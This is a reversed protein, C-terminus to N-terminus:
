PRRLPSRTVGGIVDPPSLTDILNTLPSKEKAHRRPPLRPSESEPSGTNFYDPGLPLTVDDGFNFPPLNPSYDNPLQFSPTNMMDFSGLGTRLFPTVPSRRIDYNLPSRFPSPRPSPRTPKEPTGRNAQPSPPQDLHSRRKTTSSPPPPIQDEETDFQAQPFYGEGGQQEPPYAHYSPPGSYYVRPSATPFPGYQYKPPPPRSNSSLPRGPSKQQHRPTSYRQPHYFSQMASQRSQTPPAHQKGESDTGPSARAPQTPSEEPFLPFLADEVAIDEQLDLADDMM